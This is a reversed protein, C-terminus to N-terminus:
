AFEKFVQYIILLFLFIVVWVLFITLMLNKAKSVKEEDGASSILLFWTYIISAMIAWGLLRWLIKAIQIILQGASETFSPTSAIYFVYDIIKILVLAIVVNLLGTKATDIKEEEEHAAMFRFGYIIIMIIAGFFAATKFIALAQFLVNHQLNQSFESTGSMNGINIASLIWTSGFFLIAGYLIYLISTKATSLKEEDGANLVFSIGNWLLFIFLVAGWLVRIVDRLLGGKSSACGPFAIPNPYFLRRINDMLSASPDVCISFVTEVRGFEDPTSSTLYNAFNHEFTPAPGAYAVSLWAICISLALLIKKM